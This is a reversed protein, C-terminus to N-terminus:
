AALQDKGKPVVGIEQFSHDNLCIVKVDSTFHSDLFSSKPHAPTHIIWRHSGCGDGREEQLMYPVNNWELRNTRLSQVPLVLQVSSVLLRLKILQNDPWLHGSDFLIASTPNSQAPVYNTVVTPTGPQEPLTQPRTLGLHGQEQKWSIM